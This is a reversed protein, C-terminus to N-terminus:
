KAPESGRPPGDIVDSTVLTLLGDYPSGPKDIYTQLVGDRARTMRYCLWEDPQSPDGLICLGGEQLRWRFKESGSKSYISPEDVVSFRGDQAFYEQVVFRGTRGDPRVDYRYVLTKGAVARALEAGELPTGRPTERTGEKMARLASENERQRQAVSYGSDSHTLAACAGLTGAMLVTCAGKAIAHMSPTSTMM